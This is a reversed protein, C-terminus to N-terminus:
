GGFVPCKRGVNVPDATRRAILDLLTGLCKYSWRQMDRPRLVERMVTPPAEGGVCLRGCGRCIRPVRSSMARHTASPKRGHHKDASLHHRPLRPGTLTVFPM